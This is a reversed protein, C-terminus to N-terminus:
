QLLQLVSNLGSNAQSLMSQAAEVLISQKSYETMETAMDTDRLLSEASTLNESYSGNNNYTYNMRNQLAGYKSRCASVYAAAKDAASITKEAEKRTKSGADFIGMSVTSMKYRPIRTCDGAVGSNQIHLEDVYPTEEIYSSYTSRIATSPLATARLSYYMYNYNDIQFETNEVMDKIAYTTYDDIAEQLSNLRSGDVARYSTHLNYRKSADIGAHKQADYDVFSGDDLKVYAGDNNQKMEVIISDEFSKYDFSYSLRTTNNLLVSPDADKKQAMIFSYTGQTSTDFPRTYFTAERMDYGTHIGRCDCVYFNSGDAVYQSYHSDLSDKDLPDGTLIEVLAKSLQQGNSIGADKLSNVDIKMYYDIGNRKTSYSYGNATTQAPDTLGSVFEVSYHRYCTLCTSDFGLGRLDDLSYRSGLGSFDIRAAPYTNGNKGNEGQSQWSDIPDYYSSYDFNDSRKMSATLTVQESMYGSTTINAEGVLDKLDTYTNYNGQPDLGQYAAITKNKIIVNAYRNLDWGLSDAQAAASGELAIVTNGSQNKFDVTIKNNSANYVPAAHAVDQVQQVNFDRGFAIEDGPTVKINTTQGTLTGIQSANEVKVSHNPIYSTQGFTMGDLGDIISDVSTVESLNFTINIDDQQERGQINDFSFTYKYKTTENISDGQTFSTIGIDNWSKKSGPIMTASDNQLWVGTADARLVLNIRGGSIQDKLKNSLLVNALSKTQNRVATEASPGDYDVKWTYRIEGQHCENVAEAMDSLSTVEDNIYFALDAGKHNLSWAGKHINADSMGKGNEDKLKDWSYVTGDINVGNGAATIRVTRSIDPVQAGPECSFTFYTGDAANYTYEGGAFVQKGTADITVMNGAVKDWSIREGNFIFGGYNVKGTAADYSSNFTNLDQPVGNVGIGLEIKPIHFVNLGNFKTREAITNIEKKLEQIEDDIAQRDEPANTDNAGKVALERIRGIMSHLEDMVGDATQVFSIGDQINDSGQKLGRIQNRMKESISLIAADDAARNVKFGSSLKEMSKAKKKQNIGYQNATDLAMINTMVSLM